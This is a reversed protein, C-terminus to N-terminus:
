GQFDSVLRKDEIKNPLQIGRGPDNGDSKAEQEHGNRSNWRVLVQKPPVLSKVGLPDLAEVQLIISLITM